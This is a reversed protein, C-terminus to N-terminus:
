KIVTCNDIKLEELLDDYGLFRGKIKVNENENFNQFDSKKFSAYVKGDILISNSDTDVQTIKGSIEVVKNLYTKNASAENKSFESFISETSSIKIAEESAFDRGGGFLYKYGLFGVAMFVVFILINKKM